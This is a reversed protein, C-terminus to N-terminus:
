PTTEFRQSLPVFAQTNCTYYLPCETASCNRQKSSLAIRLIRCAIVPYAVSYLCQTCSVRVIHTHSFLESASQPYRLWMRIETVTALASRKFLVSYSALRQASSTFRVPETIPLAVEDFSDQHWLALCTLHLSLRITFRSTMSASLFNTGDQVM